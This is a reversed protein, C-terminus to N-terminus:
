RRDQLEIEFMVWNGKSPSLAVQETYKAAKSTAPVASPSDKTTYVGVTVAASGRLRGGNGRILESVEAVRELYDGSLGGNAANVKTAFGAYQKCGVCGADSAALLPAANGTQSAYNMLDIYHRIFEEAAALSLGNATTPRIPPSPPVTSAPTSAQTVSTTQSPATGASSTQPPATNPHGAEPSGQGCSTLLTTTALCALLKLTPRNRHTM